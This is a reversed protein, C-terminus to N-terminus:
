AWVIDNTEIPDIEDFGPLPASFLGGRWADLHRRVLMLGDQTGATILALPPQGGFLPGSNSSTLWGNVEADSQFVIKLAKHIGLVASIRILTDVPLTLDTGARSKALWGFYTSRGPQGLVRMREAETLGWQDAIATFTRLGPGSLRRRASTGYRDTVLPIPKVVANSTRALRAM